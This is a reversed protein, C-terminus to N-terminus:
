TVGIKKLICFILNRIIERKPSNLEKRKANKCKVKYINLNM